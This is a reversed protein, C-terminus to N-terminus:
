LKGAATIKLIWFLISVAVDVKKDKIDSLVEKKRRDTKGTNKNDRVLKVSSM